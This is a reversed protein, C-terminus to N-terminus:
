LTLLTQRYFAVTSKRLFQTMQGRGAENLRLGKIHQQQQLNTTTTAFKKNQLLLPRQLLQRVTACNIM